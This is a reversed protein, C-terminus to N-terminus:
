SNSSREPDAHTLRKLAHSISEAFAAAAATQRAATTESDVARILASGVIVADGHDALAAAQEPTSVGFGVAVPVPSLQRTETLRQQLESSITLAGGTTGTTSVYYLFGKSNRAIRATRERPTTPAAMLISDLGRKEAISTWEEAEELPLDPVIVGSVGADKAREAFRDLGMRIMPNVYTMLVLPSRVKQAIKSILSFAGEPTMGGALARTGAAQIVPGDALPDSFPLGVEIVDAGAEDLAVIIDRCTREYPFGATMFPIFAARDAQNARRISTQILSTV